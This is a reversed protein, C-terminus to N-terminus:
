TFVKKNNKREGGWWGEGKREEGFERREGDEDEDGDGDEDWESVWERERGRFLVFGILWWVCDLWWVWALFGVKRLGWFGFWFVFWVVSM